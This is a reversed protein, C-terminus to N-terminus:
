QQCPQPRQTADTSLGRDWWCDESHTGLPCLRVSTLAPGQITHLPLARQFVGWLSVHHTQESTAWAKSHILLYGGRLIYATLGQESTALRLSHGQCTAALWEEM